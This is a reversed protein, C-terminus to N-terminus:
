SDVNAPPQMEEVTRLRWRMLELDYFFRREDIGLERAAALVAEEAREHPTRQDVDMLALMVEAKIRLDLPSPDPIGGADRVTRRREVPARNVHREFTARSRLITELSDYTEVTGSRNPRDARHPDYAAGDIALKVMELGDSKLYPELLFYRDPSFSARPHRCATRWYNFAELAAPWLGSARAVEARDNRLQRVKAATSRIVEELGEIELDRQACGPCQAHQEGTVTDVLVLHRREAELAEDKAAVAIRIADGELTLQAVEESM